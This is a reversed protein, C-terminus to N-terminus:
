ALFLPVNAHTVLVEGCKDRLYSLGLKVNDLMEGEPEEPLFVVGLRAADRKAEEGCVAVIRRIGSRQFVRVIRQIAPITGVEKSPTLTRGSGTRGAAVILAATM